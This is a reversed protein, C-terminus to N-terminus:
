PFSIKLQNIQTKKKKHLDMSKTPLNHILSVRFGLETIPQLIHFLPLVLFSLSYEVQHKLVHVSIELFEDAGETLRSLM